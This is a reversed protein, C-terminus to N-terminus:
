IQCADYRLSLIAYSWSKQYLFSSWKKKKKNKKNNKKNQNKPSNSPYWPLFYGLIFFSLGECPIDGSCYLMHDHNKTCQHLNHYRWTNKTKQQQKKKWKKLIKPYSNLFFITEHFFFSLTSHQACLALILVIHEDILTGSISKFLLLLFVKKIFELIFNLNEEYSNLEINVNVVYTCAINKCNNMNIYIPM